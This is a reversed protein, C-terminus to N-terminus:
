GPHIYGTDRFILNSKGLGIRVGDRLVNKRTLQDEVTVGNLSDLDVICIEKVNEDYYILAHNASVTDDALVLDNPEARGISIPLSAFTRTEGNELILKLGFESNNVARRASDGTQKSTQSKDGSPEGPKRGFLKGLRAM